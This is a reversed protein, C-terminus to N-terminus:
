EHMVAMALASDTGPRIPLWKGGLLQATHNL